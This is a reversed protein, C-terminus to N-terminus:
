KQIHKDNVKYIGRINNSYRRVPEIIVGVDRRAHIMLGEGIYVGIHNADAFTMEIIANEEYNEIRTCDIFDNEGKIDKLEIGSRRLVEIALGKCDLGRKSRGYLEYRIGLLDRYNKM